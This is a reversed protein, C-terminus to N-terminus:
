KIEREFITYHKFAPPKRVHYQNTVHEFTQSAYHHIEPGLASSLKRFLAMENKM